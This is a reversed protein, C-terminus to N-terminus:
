PRPSRQDPPPAHRMELRLRNPGRRSSCPHEAMQLLGRPHKGAELMEDPGSGRGSVGQLHLGSFILGRGVHHGRNAEHDSIFTRLHRASQRLQERVPRQLRPALRHDGRKTLDSGRGSDHVRAVCVLPRRLVVGGEQRLPLRGRQTALHTGHVGYRRELSQTLAERRSSVEQIDADAHRLQRGGKALCHGVRSDDADILERSRQTESCLRDRRTTESITEFHTGEAPLLQGIHLPEIQGPHRRREEGFRDKCVPQASDTIREAGAAPQDDPHSAEIVVCERYCHRTPLREAAADRRQGGVFRSCRQGRGPEGLDLLQWTRRACGRDVGRSFLRWGSRM